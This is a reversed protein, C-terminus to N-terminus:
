EAIFERSQNREEYEKKSEKEKSPLILRELGGERIFNTLPELLEKNRKNTLYKTIEIYQRLYPPRRYSCRNKRRVTGNFVFEQNVGERCLCPDEILKENKYFARAIPTGYNKWVSFVNEQRGRYFTTSIIKNRQDHPFKM